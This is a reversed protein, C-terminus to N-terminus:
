RTPKHSKIVGYFTQDTITITSNNTIMASAIYAGTKFFIDQGFSVMHHTRTCSSDPM